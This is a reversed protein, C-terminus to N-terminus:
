ILDFGFGPGGGGGLGEWFGGGGKPGKPWRNTPTTADECRISDLAPREHTTRLTAPDREPNLMNTHIKRQM